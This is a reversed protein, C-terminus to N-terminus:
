RVGRLARWFDRLREVATRIDSSRFAWGDRRLEVVYRAGCETCAVAATQKGRAVWLREQDYSENGCAVCALWGDWDTILQADPSQYKLGRMFRTLVMDVRGHLINFDVAAAPAIIRKTM